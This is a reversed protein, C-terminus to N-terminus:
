NRILEMELQEYDYTNQEFDAKKKQIKKKYGQKIAAKMYAIPVNVNPSSKYVEYASLVKDLDFDAYECIENIEKMNFDSKMIEYAEQITKFKLEQTHDLQKEENETPDKPTFYFKLSTVKKNRGRVPDCAVTYKMKKNIEATSKKIIDRNFSKFDAWKMQGSETVYEQIMNYDPYSKYLENRIKKDSATLIGLRFKLDLLNFEFMRTKRTKGYRAEEKDYESKLIEYLRLSNVSRFQMIDSISLVTYNGQLEYIIDTLSDNYRIYLVGDKFEADVVVQTYRLYKNDDDKVLISWDFITPRKSSRDCANAIHTYLSGSNSNFLAKLESTYITAVVHNNKDITIHQMGIAFLKQSLLTGKGKSNILENSKKFTRTEILEKKQPDKVTNRM